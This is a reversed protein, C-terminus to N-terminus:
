LSCHTAAHPVAALVACQPLGRCNWFITLATTCVPYCSQVLVQMVQGTVLAIVVDRGLIQMRM